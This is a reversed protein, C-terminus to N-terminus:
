TITYITNDLGYHANLIFGKKGLIIDKYNEMKENAIQFSIKDGVCDLRIEKGLYGNRVSEILIAMDNFIVDFVNKFSRNKYKQVFDDISSNDLSNYGKEFLNTVNFVDNLMDNLEDKYLINLYKFSIYTTSHYECKRKLVMSVQNITELSPFDYSDYFQEIFNDVFLYDFNFICVGKVAFDNDSIVKIFQEKTIGGELYDEILKSFSSIIDFM